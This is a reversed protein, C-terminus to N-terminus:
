DRVHFTSPLLQFGHRLRSTAERSLNSESSRRNRKGRTRKFFVVRSRMVAKPELTESRPVDLYHIILDYYKRGNADLKLGDCTLGGGIKLITSLEKRFGARLRTALERVGDRVTPPSPLMYAIDVSKNPPISQGASVLAEAFMLMGEHRYAFNLPLMGHVVALVSAETVTRKVGSSVKHPEDLTDKKDVHKARYHSKLAATGDIPDFRKLGDLLACNDSLVYKCVVWGASAKFREQHCLFHYGRYIDASLSPQYKRYKAFDLLIFDDSSYNADLGRVAVVAEDQTKVRKIQQSDTTTKQRKTVREM